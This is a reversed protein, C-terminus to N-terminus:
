FWFRVGAIMAFISTDEGEARALSATEGRSSTDHDHTHGPPGEAAHGVAVFALASAGFLLAKSTRLFHSTM